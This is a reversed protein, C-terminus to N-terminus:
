IIITKKIGNKRRIKSQAQHKCLLVKARTFEPGTSIYGRTATQIQREESLNQEAWRLCLM